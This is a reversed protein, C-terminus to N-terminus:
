DSKLGKGLVVIYSENNITEVQDGFVEDIVSSLSDYDHGAIVSDEKLKPFWAKIEEKVYRYDHSGDFHIFDISSDEFDKSAEISDKAHITTMNTLGCSELNHLFLDYFRGRWEEGHAKCVMNASHQSINQFLFNDVAHMSVTKNRKKLEKGLFCFSGGTFIGTEVFTMGNSADEAIKSFLSEKTNIGMLAFVPFSNLSTDWGNNKM